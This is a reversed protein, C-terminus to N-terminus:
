SLIECTRLFKSGLESIRYGSTYEDYEAKLTHWEEFDDYPNSGTSFEPIIIKPLKMKILRLRQLNELEFDDVIVNFGFKILDDLKENSEQESHSMQWKSKGGYKETFESLDRKLQNEKESIELLVSYENKSLQSLIYPFIQNQYNEHLCGLL